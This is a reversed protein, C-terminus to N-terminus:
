AAARRHPPIYRKVRIKGELKRAEALDYAIQMALWTEAEGGFAKTIRIAMEPTMGSKGTLLNTLGQRSVGLVEAGASVSLDLAELCASRVLRGPHVPNKM